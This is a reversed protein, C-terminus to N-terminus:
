VFLRVAASLPSLCNISNVSLWLCTSCDPQGGGQRWDRRTAFFHRGRSCSEKDKAMKVARISSSIIRIKYNVKSVSLDVQQRTRTDAALLSHAGFFKQFYYSSASLFISRILQSISGLLSAVFIPFADFFGAFAADAELM